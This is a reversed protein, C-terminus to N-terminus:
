KINKKAYLMFVGMNGFRSDLDVYVQFSKGKLMEVIENLLNEGNKIHTHVEMSIQRIKNWDEEKIGALVEREYNEADIKLLDIREINNELIIDSLPRLTCDVMESKYYKKLWTKVVFKRLFKPVFKAIPMLDVFTENYNHLFQNIKLDWDFPRVASDASVKPYYHIKTKQNTEALGINYTKLNTSINKLNAELVEYIIPVPEFAFIILDRAQQAIFRSFLGINAGVDFIVDNDNVKIEFQLYDNEVYIEEYIDLASLKDIYYIKEGNPLVLDKMIGYGKKM